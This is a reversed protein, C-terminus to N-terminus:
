IPKWRQVDHLSGFSLPELALQDYWLDKCSCEVDSFDDLSQTLSVNRIQKLIDQDCHPCNHAGRPKGGGAIDCQFRISPYTKLGHTLIEIVSWLWPPRYQQRKWLYEVLTFRQVNTPNLSILDTIDAIDHITQICDAIAEKETLFPPKVLVYTKLFMELDHIIQAAKKYSNLNFGKNIAQKRILDSSTELGIGIELVSSGLHKHLCTLKEKTVYMPRSEVSIKNVPHQSLTEIIQNQVTSSVETDDLFSGSNFIKVVSQDKYHQLAHNFQSLLDNNPVSQWASDTFYGCMSCGSQHMWSCGRTRLIIVFADIIKGNFVDKESWTKVPQSLTSKKPQFRNNREKCLMALQNM